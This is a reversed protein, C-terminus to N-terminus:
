TPAPPGTSSSRCSAWGAHELTTRTPPASPGWGIATKVRAIARALLVPDGTFDQALDSRHAFVIAVRDAATVDRAFATLFRTVNLIDAAAIASDDVLIVFARSSPLAARNDAVDVPM